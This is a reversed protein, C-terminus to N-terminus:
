CHLLQLEWHSPHMEGIMWPRDETMESFIASKVRYVILWLHFTLLFYAVNSVSCPSWMGRSQFPIEGAENFIDQHSLKQMGSQIRVLKLWNKRQKHSKTSWKNNTVMFVVWWQWDAEQKEDKEKCVCHIKYKRGCNLTVAAWIDWYTENNTEKYARKPLSRIMASQSLFLIVYLIRERSICTSTLVLSPFARFMWMNQELFGPKSRDVILARSPEPRSTLCSTMLQRLPNAISIKSASTIFYKFQNHM